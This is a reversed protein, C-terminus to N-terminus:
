FEVKKWTKNARWRNSGRLYEIFAAKIDKLTFWGEAAFLEGTAGDKYELCYPESKTRDQFAECEESLEWMSASQIFGGNEHAMVIFQGFGDEADEDFVAQLHKESVHHIRPLDEGELIM